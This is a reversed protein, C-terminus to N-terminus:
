KKKEENESAMNSIELTNSDRKKKPLKVLCSTTMNTNRSNDDKAM